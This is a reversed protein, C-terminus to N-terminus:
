VNDFRREIEIYNYVMNKYLIDISENYLLKHVMKNFCINQIM